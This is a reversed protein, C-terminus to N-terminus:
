AGGFEGHETEGSLRLGRCSLLCSLVPQQARRGDRVQLWGLDVPLFIFRQSINKM